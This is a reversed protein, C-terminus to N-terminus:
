KKTIEKFSKFWVDNRIKKYPKTYELHGKDGGRFTSKRYIYLLEEKKNLELKYTYLGYEILINYDGYGDCVFNYKEIKFKKLLKEILEQNNKPSYIEYWRNTM